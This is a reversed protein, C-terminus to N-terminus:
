IFGLRHHLLAAFRPLFVVLDEAVLDEFVLLGIARPLNGASSLFDAGHGAAIGVVIVIAPEIAGGEACQHQFNVVAEEAGVAASGGLLAADSKGRVREM